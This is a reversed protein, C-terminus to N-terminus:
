SRPNRSHTLAFSRLAEAVEALTRAWGDERRRFIRVSPYWPSDIGDIEWRWDAAGSNLLWTPKGMAGALHAVSTDVAIVLDLNAMLAATDAFDTLEASHDVLALPVKSLEAPGFGVQLNYYTVGAVDCLAGYEGPAPVRAGNRARDPNGGWVLGVRARPDLALRKSWALVLAEPPRIYPVVGPLDKRTVRLVRALSLLPIEADCAVFSAADSVIRDVGQMGGFLRVLPKSCRFVVTARARTLSPLFRAFMLVDGYGQEASVLLTRGPMEEGHWRPHGSAYQHEYKPIQVRAEYLDWGLAFEGRLLAINALGVRANANAPERALALNFYREADDLQWLWICAGGLGCLVPVHDPQEEFCALFATRAQAHEGMDNLVQGVNVRADFEVPAVARFCELAQAFEHRERWVRGLNNRAAAFAPELRLAEEFCQQADDLKGRDLYITGLNNHLAASVAGAALAAQYGRLALEANGMAAHLAGLQAHAAALGPALIAAQEFHKVAEASEGRMLALQGCLMAVDVDNPHSAALPNLKQAALLYSRQGILASIELLM